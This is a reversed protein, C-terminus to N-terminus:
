RSRHDVAVKGVAARDRKPWILLGLLAAATLLSIALCVAREPGGTFELDISRAGAGDPDIIMMGLQDPRIRLRRGGATARWGPDYNIQVSVVQAPAVMATIQGHVPTEWTLSAPPLTPDELAAVYLRLPEIDL